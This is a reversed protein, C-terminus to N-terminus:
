PSLSIDGERSVERIMTSGGACIMPVYSATVAPPLVQVASESKTRQLRRAPMSKHRMFQQHFTKTETKMQEEFGPETERIYQRPQCMAPYFKYFGAYGGSLIYLEPYHCQPWDQALSRDLDRLASAMKPARKQSFECHFILVHKHARNTGTTTRPPLKDSNANLGSRPTLLYEKIEDLTRLNVAGPIHGGQYEYSYRCDIVTYGSVVDDFGGNLLQIMTEPKLRMLRDDGGNEAPLIYKGVADNGMGSSSTAALFEAATATSMTVAKQLVPRKGMMGGPRAAPKISEVAASSGSRSRLAPISTRKKMPPEKTPSWGFYDRLPSPSHDDRAARNRIKATTGVGSSGAITSTTATASTAAASAALAALSQSTGPFALSPSSLSLETGFM